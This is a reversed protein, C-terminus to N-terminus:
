DGSRGVITFAFGLALDKDGSKVTGQVGVAIVKPGKLQIAPEKTPKPYPFLQMVVPHTGGTASASQEILKKLPMADPQEDSGASSLVCLDRHPTTGEHDKSIPQVAIRLTYVSAPIEQHHFDVWPRTFRVAGVLTSASISRYDPEAKTPTAPIAKRLWFTAMEGKSDSVVTARDDLLDRIAPKLEKPIPSKALRAALTPPDARVATATCALALATARLM